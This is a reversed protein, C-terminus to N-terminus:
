SCAAVSNIPLVTSVERGLLSLLLTVRDNGKTASSFIGIQDRLPGSIIELRDGKLFSPQSDVQVNGEADERDMIERIVSDKIRAPLEGFSVINKVGFTSNISHWRQSDLDLRVFLYRPFFPIRVVEKRRAHKRVKSVTPLYVEFGQHVLHREAQFECNPLTNVVYWKEVM